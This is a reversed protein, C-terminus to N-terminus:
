KTANYMATIKNDTLARNYIRLEDVYGNFFQNSASGGPNRGINVNNPSNSQSAVTYGSSKLTGDTYIKVSAGSAGPNFVGTVFVWQNLPTNPSSIGSGSFQATAVSFQMRQTNQMPGLLWGYYGSNSKSIIGCFPAGPGTCNSFNRTYIWGSVSMAGTFQLLTPNGLDVYQSSGNFSIAQGIQGTVFPPSGVATGNLHNASSDTTSNNFGWYAVLGSVQEWLTLNTGLEFHTPDTGNDATGASQLYKDSELLAVFEYGQVVSGGNIYAYYLGKSADNVPDIPLTSFPSGASISSFNVPVWGNGDTKRFNASTKCQYSWGSPLPPLNLNNCTPSTDPVSIYVVNPVQTFTNGLTKYLEIGKNLQNLDTIRGSDRGRAFFGVPNLILITVTSLVGLIGIVILLELITFSQNNKLYARFHM